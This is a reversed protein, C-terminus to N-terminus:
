KASTICNNESISERKAVKNQVLEHVLIAVIILLGGIVQTITTTQGLVIFGILLAFIPETLEILQVSQSKMLTLAKVTCWFGCITPFLALMVIVPISAIAPLEIGTIAFPVFLYIVGCLMLSFVTVMGSGLEMHRSLVLFASYGVGALIAFLIGTFNSALLHGLSLFILSLGALSLLISCIENLYLSRKEQVANFIFTTITSAGFLCFVVVAVNVKKYAATEFNYLMFFGFFACLAVTKWKKKFYKQFDMWQGSGTLIIAVILLGAFCKYFAVSEPSLGSLFLNVSIVGVTGNLLAAMLALFGGLIKRNNM